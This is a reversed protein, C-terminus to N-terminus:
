LNRYCVPVGEPILFEQMVYPYLSNVDYYYLNEGVSKYVDVHGGYYGRRIFSDKNKTPIHIKWTSDDYYEMRFITLTLSSLTLKNVIDINWMEWCIDQAKRMIGGLLRVDQMLYELLEEKMLSLKEVMVKQHDIDGKTGLEPFM